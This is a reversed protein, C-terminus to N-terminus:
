SRKVKAALKRMEEETPKQGRLTRFFAPLMKVVESDSMIDKPIIGHDAAALDFFTYWDDSGAKIGLTKAYRELIDTDQPPPMAGRELRSINAPDASAKICFERLTIRKKKRLSKFFDGFSKSEGAM